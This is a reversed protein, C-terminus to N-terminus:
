SHPFSPVPEPEDQLPCLRHVSELFRSMEFPKRIYDHVGLHEAHLRHQNGEKATIMIVPPGGKRSRLKELVLLGSKQPMMLDVVILDPAEREAMALAMNGDTATVLRYGETELITRMANLVEPDDDVVLVTKVTAM